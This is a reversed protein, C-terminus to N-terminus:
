RVVLIEQVIECQLYYRPYYLVFISGIDTDNDVPFSNIMVFRVKQISLRCNLVKGDENKGDFKVFRGPFVEDVIKKALAVRYSPDPHKDYESKNKPM